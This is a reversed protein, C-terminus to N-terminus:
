IKKYPCCSLNTLPMEGNEVFLISEDPKVTNMYNNETHVPKFPFCMLHCSRSNAIYAVWVFNLGVCSENSVLTKPKKSM